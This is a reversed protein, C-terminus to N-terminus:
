EDNIMTKKKLNTPNTSQGLPHQTWGGTTPNAKLNNTTGPGTINIRAERIM